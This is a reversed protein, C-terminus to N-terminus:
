MLVYIKINNKELFNKLADTPSYIFSQYYEEASVMTYHPAIGHFCFLFACLCLNRKIVQRYKSLTKNDKAPLSSIEYQIV